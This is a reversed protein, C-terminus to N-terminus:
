YLFNVLSNVCISFTLSSKDNSLTIQFFPTSNATPMTPNPNVYTWFGSLVLAHTSLPGITLSGSDGTLM